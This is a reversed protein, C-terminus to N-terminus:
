SRKRRAQRSQARKEKRVKKSDGHDNMEEARDAERFRARQRSMYSIGAVVLLVALACFLIIYFVGPNSWM